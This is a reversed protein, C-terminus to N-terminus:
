LLLPDPISDDSPSHTLALEKNLLWHSRFSKFYSNHSYTSKSQAKEEKELEIGKPIAHYVASYCDGMREKVFGGSKKMLKYIGYAILEDAFLVFDSEHKQTQRQAVVFEYIWFTELLQRYIPSDKSGNFLSYLKNNKNTTADFLEELVKSKASKARGPQEYFTAYWFKLVTESHVSKQLSISLKNEFTEGRKSLYGIGANAFIEKTYENFLRTSIKDRYNIPSQTNTAETIKDILESETTEYLRVVVYIDELKNRDQQYIEYIVHTTQLGNVIVPNVVELPYFGVQMEKPIKVREAIITIGNNLFPFYEADDGLLTARINKNTKNYRLFGRINDSFVTDIRKNTHQELDLLKCLELAPLRFNVAKVNQISFSILAQPDSRLSINSKEAMFSFTVPKRKKRESVLNDIQEYLDQSDFVQLNDTNEVHRDIRPKTAGAKEGKFVFYLRTEVVRGSSVLTQYIQLASSVKENLPLNLTNGYVFVTRFDNVFKALENDGVSDSSKIQFVHLINEDEDEELYIGDFGGDNRGNINGSNDKILTSAHDYVEDFSLDLIAAIALIEFAFPKQLSFKDAIRDIYGSFFLEKNMM